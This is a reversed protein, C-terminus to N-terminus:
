SIIRRRPMVNINWTTITSTTRSGLDLEHAKASTLVEIKSIDIDVLPRTFIGSDSGLVTESIKVWVDGGNVTYWTVAKCEFSTLCTDHVWHIELEVDRFYGKLNHKFYNNIPGLPPFGGIDLSEIVRGRQADLSRRM